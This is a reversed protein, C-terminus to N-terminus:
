LLLNILVASPQQNFLKKLIADNASTKKSIREVRKYVSIFRSRGQKRNKDFSRTTQRM